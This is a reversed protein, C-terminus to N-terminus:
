NSCRNLSQYIVEYDNWVDNQGLCPDNVHVMPIRAACRAFFQRLPRAERKLGGDVDILGLAAVVVVVIVVRELVM